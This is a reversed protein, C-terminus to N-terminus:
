PAQPACLHARLLASDLVGLTVLTKGSGEAEVVLRGWRRAGSRRAFSVLLPLWLAWLTAADRSEPPQSSYTGDHFRRRRRRM